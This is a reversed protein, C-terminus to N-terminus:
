SYSHTSEYLSAIIDWPSQYLVIYFKERYSHSVKLTTNSHSQHLHSLEVPSDNSNSM